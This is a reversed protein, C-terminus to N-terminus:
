LGKLCLIVTFACSNLTAQSVATVVGLVLLLLTVGLTLVTFTASAECFM